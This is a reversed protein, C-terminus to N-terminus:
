PLYILDPLVNPSEGSVLIFAQWSPDTNGEQTSFDVHDSALIVKITDRGGSLSAGSERTWVVDTFTLYGSYALQAVVQFGTSTQDAFIATNPDFDTLAELDPDEPDYYLKVTVGNRGTEPDNEVERVYAELSASFRTRSMQVSPLQTTKTSTLVIQPTFSQDDRDAYLVAEQYEAGDVVVIVAKSPHAVSAEPPTDVTWSITSISFYGDVADPDTFTWTTAEPEHDAVYAEVLEQSTLPADEPPVYVAVSLGNIGDGTGLETITGELAGSYTRKDVYLPDLVIGVAGSYVTVAPAMLPFYDVDEVELIVDWPTGQEEAGGQPLQESERWRVNEFRYGGAEGELASTTTVYDPDHTAVWAEAEAESSLPSEPVYLKVTMGNIGPNEQNVDEERDLVQGEVVGAEFFARELYLDGISSAAGSVIRITTDFKQYDEHEVTIRVDQLDGEQRFNPARSKWVIRRFVFYGPEGATQTYTQQYSSEDGNDYYIKVVAQNVGEKTVGDRIYGQVEGEFYQLCGLPLAMVLLALLLGVSRLRAGRMAWPRPAHPTPSPAHPTPRPAVSGQRAHSM